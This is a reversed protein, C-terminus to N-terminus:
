GLGRRSPVLLEASISIVSLQVSKSEHLLNTLFKLLNHCEALNVCSRIQTKRLLPGGLGLIRVACLHAEQPNVCEASILTQCGLRM